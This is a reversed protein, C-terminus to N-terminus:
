SYSVLSFSSVGKVNIRNSSCHQSHKSTMREMLRSLDAGFHRVQNSGVAGELTVQLEGSAPAWLTSTCTHNVFALVTWSDSQIQLVCLHRQTVDAQRLSLKSRLLVYDLAAHARGETQQCPETNAWLSTHNHPCSCPLCEGGTRRQKNACVFPKREAQLVARNARKHSPM